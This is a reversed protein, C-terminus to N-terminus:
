DEVEEIMGNTMINAIELISDRSKKIDEHVRRIEPSDQFLPIELVKSISEYRQDLM